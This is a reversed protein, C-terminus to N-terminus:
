WVCYFVKVTGRKTNKDAAENVRCRVCVCVCVRVCVCVCVCVCM